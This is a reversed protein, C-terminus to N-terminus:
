KQLSLAGSFTEAVFEATLYDALAPYDEERYVFVSINSINGKDGARAHAVERLRMM